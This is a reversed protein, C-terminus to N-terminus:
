NETTDYKVKMAEWFWWDNLSQPGNTIIQIQKDRLKPTELAQQKWVPLTMTSIM